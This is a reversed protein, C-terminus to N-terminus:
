ESLQLLDFNIQYVEESKCKQTVKTLLLRASIDPLARAMFAFVGIFINGDVSSTGKTDFM